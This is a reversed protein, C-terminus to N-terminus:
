KLLKELDTFNRNVIKTRSLQAVKGNLYFVMAKITKGREKTVKRVIEKIIADANLNDLKDLDWIIYYPLQKPNINKPMMQKKSKNIQTSIGGIKEISKRDGLYKGNILYEPNKIGPTFDHKRILIQLNTQESVALAVEYNRKLDNNDAGLAISLNQHKTKVIGPNSKLYADINIKAEKKFSNDLTQEYASEKFIKGSIAGNNTFEAKVPPTFTEYGKTPAEDTPIVDCRCGWDNPPLLKQWIPHDIPAIFGDWEKHKDRVRKDGATVYKLNPYLEKTDQFEQWKHAMNATAVTQDFETQLWNVNYLQSTALAKKRFESWTPLKGKENLLELLSNRFSAEKFASFELINTKLAHALDGDYFELKPNYATDLGKGLKKFYFDILKQQEQEPVARDDFLSRM